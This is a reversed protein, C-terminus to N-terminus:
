SGTFDYKKVGLMWFKYSLRFFAMGIFPSLITLLPIHDPELIALSPYYAIFAIPILFTFLFKFFGHFIDAPYKAFDKFKFMIVMVSGSGQLWFATAAAFNMLSIMFLSATIIYIVLKVIIWPTVPLGIHYWAYILTGMGFFFQGLGKVDFVESIYYFFVNIPRFCYKIFDGSRVMFRLNWNNDFFCQVPTLSILSFGYLFLMHHYDWGNISPFNKFIIMFSVFGAVNTLIMGFTSIIFDARYSMKSKFDQIIIKRYISAYFGLGRKNSNTSNNM